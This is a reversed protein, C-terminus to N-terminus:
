EFGRTPMALLQDRDVINVSTTKDKIVLPREATVTIVKGTERTEQEMERNQFTALDASVRVNSVEVRAYGISSFVLVYTGVPVNIINYRGELDTKAGMRTGDISVSVGALPEKTKSDTVTGTISGTVAGFIPGALLCAIFCAVILFKPKM